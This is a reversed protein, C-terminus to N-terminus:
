EKLGGVVHLSPKKTPEQRVSSAKLEDAIQRARRSRSSKKPSSSATGGPTIAGANSTKATSADSTSLCEDAGPTVRNKLVFEDVDNPLYLVEGGLRVYVPGGGRARLKELWSQSKHLRAAAEHTTLLATM